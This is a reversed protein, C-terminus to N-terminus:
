KRRQTATIGTENARPKGSIATREFLLSNMKNHLTDVNWNEIRCMHAYFDKQIEDKLPILLKFHSWSLQRWLIAVNELDPFQDAFQIM